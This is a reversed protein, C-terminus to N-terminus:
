LYGKMKRRYEKYKDEISYKLPHANKTDKECHKEKITYTGCIVCKRLKLKSKKNKKNKDKEDL